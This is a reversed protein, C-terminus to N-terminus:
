GSWCGAPGWGSVTSSQVGAKREKHATFGFLSELRSIGVGHGCTMIASKGQGLVKRSYGPSRMPLSLGTRSGGLM